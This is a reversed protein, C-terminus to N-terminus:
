QCALQFPDQRAGAISREYDGIRGDIRRPVTSDDMKRVAPVPLLSRGVKSGQTQPFILITGVVGFAIYYATPILFTNALTYQEVQYGRLRLELDVCICTYSVPFLPGYSMMVDM